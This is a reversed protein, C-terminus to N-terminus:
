TLITNTKNFPMLLLIHYYATNDDDDDDDDDSYKWQGSQIKNCVMNNGDRSCFLSGSIEESKIKDFNIPKRYQDCTM